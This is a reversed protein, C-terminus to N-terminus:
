QQQLRDLSLVTRQHENFKAENGLKRYAEALGAHINARFPRIAQASQFAKLAENANGKMLYCDGLFRWDDAQRRIKVLEKLRAIAADYRFEQYDHNACIMLAVARMEPHADTAELTQRAYEAARGPNRSYTLQALWQTTAPDRLGLAYAEELLPKARFEFEAAFAEYGQRDKAELYALALNRKQDAVSLHADSEIPELEPARTPLPRKPGHIGIRHHTFALHPIDTDGKPMHCVVCSDAPTTKERDLEPAKCAESTHCSMCQERHTAALDKPKEAEHPDHCTLCTMESNIYCASMRLQEIHGTVTMRDEGGAPRYDIRQNSLPTGPRFDNPDRGRLRVSAVAGLHCESCIAEMLPRSLKSPNVITLDEDGAVQRKSQHFATHISGPGHCSECGVAQERVNLKHVSQDAATVGGSHCKMCGHTIPREFSWHQPFDYGPSMDYESRSTYWTIPSEQLFGDVDILYSRCFHGSGILYRVPYDMKAIERGTPDRLVEEHRIEGNDRYVRYSRRSPKHDFKGDPPEMSPDLDSLAKSHATLLYSQHNGQHCEVCASTGVFTADPKTNLFKSEVLPPPPISGPVVPAVSVVEPTPRWARYGFYTAVGLLPLVLLLWRVRGAPGTIM